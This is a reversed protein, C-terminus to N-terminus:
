PNWGEAAAWDVALNLEDRRLPRIHLKSLDM